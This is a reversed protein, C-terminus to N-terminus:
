QHDAQNGPQAEERGKTDPASELSKKDPEFTRLGKKVLQQVVYGLPTFTFAPQDQGFQGAVRILQKDLLRSTAQSYWNALGLVKQGWVTSPAYDMKQLLSVEEGSLSAIAMQVRADNVFRQERLRRVLEETLRRRAAATDTFDITVHPVTSVDFLFRDHDDRVLLLESPQRCALALGVEYLVNGNRYPIGTVSDKGVTSIDALVLQSHAIGDSIDTLISDGSQSVDVRYPVLPANGLLVSKIAPAIVSDYRAQYAPAFTMAVFVQPKLEMRWFTKLFTNPNM